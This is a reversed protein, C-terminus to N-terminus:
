PWVQGGTCDPNSCTMKYPATLANCQPCNISRPPLFGDLSKAPSETWESTCVSCVYWATTWESRNCKPCKIDTWALAVSAAGALILLTALVPRFWKM